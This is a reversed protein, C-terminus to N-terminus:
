VVHVNSTMIKVKIKIFALFLINGGSDTDIM